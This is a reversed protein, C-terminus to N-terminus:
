SFSGWLKLPLFHPSSVSLCYSEGTFIEGRVGGLEVNEEKLLLHGLSGPITSITRLGSEVFKEHVSIAQPNEHGNCRPKCHMLALCDWKQTTSM